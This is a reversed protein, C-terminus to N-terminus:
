SFYLFPLFPSPYHAWLCCSCFYAACRQRRTQQEAGAFSTVAPPMPARYHHVTFWSTQSHHKNEKSHQASSPGYLREQPRDRTQDSPLCFLSLFLGRCRLLFFGAEGQRQRGKGAEAQRQRSRGRHLWAGALLCLMLLSIAFDVGALHTQGTHVAVQCTEEGDSTSSKLSFSREQGATKRRTPATGNRPEWVATGLSGSFSKSLSCGRGSPRGRQRHFFALSLLVLLPTKDLGEKQEEM